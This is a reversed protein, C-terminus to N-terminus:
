AKRVLEGYENYFKKWSPIKNFQIKTEYKPNLILRFSMIVMEAGFFEMWFGITNDLYKNMQDQTIGGPRDITENATRIEYALSTALSYLASIEKTKLEKVKGNLIDTPNPLLAALKRHNAFQLATGEGIAAVVMDTIESESFGDVDELMKSVFAWSRPTPFSNGAIKADFKMLDEKRYTLYGIVDPSIGNEIAWESWDDFNHRVEYHMFRNALPKPMRYTVGKDTELNGAAVMVVNEPLHYEGVRRDLILQYAAAQVAPAAGNLEDLFLIVLDYDKAFEASPLEAPQAWVMTNDNSNFYPIGKIDTPEWLPLRVDILATRRGMENYESAIARVLDSKGIGPSGHLFFPMQDAMHKKAYKRAESLRVKRTTATSESM